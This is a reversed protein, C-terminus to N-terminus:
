LLDVWVCPDRPGARYRSVKDNALQWGFASSAAANVHGCAIRPYRSTISQLTFKDCSAALIHYAGRHTSRLRM